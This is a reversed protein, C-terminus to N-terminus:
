GLLGVKRLYEHCNQSNKFGSLTLTEHIPSSKANVSKGRKRPANAM